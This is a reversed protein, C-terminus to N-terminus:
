IVRWIAVPHGRTAVSQAPRYQGTPKLLGLTRCVRPVSGWANPSAPEDLKKATLAWERFMEITIEDGKKDRCFEILAPKLGDKFAKGAFDFAQQMGQTKLDQGNM